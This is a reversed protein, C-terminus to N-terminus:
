NRRPVPRENGAKASLAGGQTVCSGKAVYKWANGRYNVTSTGACDNKGALAIGYCREKAGADKGAAAAPSAALLAAAALTAAASAIGATSERITGKSASTFRPTSM